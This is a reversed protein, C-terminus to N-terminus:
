LLEKGAHRLAQADAPHVDRDVVLPRELILDCSTHAGAIEGTEDEAAVSWGDPGHNGSPRASHVGSAVALARVLGFRLRTCRRIWSYLGPNALLKCPSPKPGAFRPDQHLLQAPDHTNRGRKAEFGLISVLKARPCGAVGQCTVREGGCRYVDLVEPFVRSQDIRFVPYETSVVLGDCEPPVVGLAGDWAMLKSYVFDGIHLRTLRQYAFEMGITKQGIFLGKGFCYVGAFHYQENATVEVHPSHLSTLRGIPVMPWERSLTM